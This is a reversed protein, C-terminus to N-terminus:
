PPPIGEVLAVVHDIAHTVPPRLQNKYGPLARLRPDTGDVAREIAADIFGEPYQGCVAEGGFISQFLKLM